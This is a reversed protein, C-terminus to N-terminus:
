IPNAALSKIIELTADIEEPSNYLHVSQRVGDQGQARVRIKKRNWLEDQIKPGTSGKVGYTVIAGALAPHTPSFVTVGKVALLGARLRDALGIIRKQLREPGIALHFDLAADLGVLLSLNATGFQMLRFIGDAANYNDWQASALTPWIGHASEERVYLVGNGPPALLWKHPSGAYADCGIEKVDVRLQGVSQAGDVLTFIGHQRALECLQRVPLVIGYKSTVHPVAIVRTRPNIADAFIKVVTEPDPTPIPITLKRVLIGQRKERLEWPGHAGVHEQDTILVEDGPKLDLGHAILNIGMTANQVLAIERENANIISGAKKRLEIQPRYGAIYEVHEPKYDYHTIMTAEVDRISATVADVVQRPSAGLTGTNFYAEGPPFLFQRRVWKWYHPDNDSSPTPPTDMESAAIASTKALPLLGLAFLGRLFSRRYIMIKEGIEHNLTTSAAIQPVTAM